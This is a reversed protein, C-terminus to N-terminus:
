LFIASKGEYWSEVTVAAHTNIIVDGNAEISLRLTSSANGYFSHITCATGIEHYDWNSINGVKVLTWEKLNKVIGTVSLYLIGGKVVTNILFENTYNPDKIFNYAKVILNNNLASLAGTVTGNGIGIISTNGLLSLITKLNKVATKLKGFLTSTNEGSYLEQVSAAESFNSITDSIDGKISTQTMQVNM